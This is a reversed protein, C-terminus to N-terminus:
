QINSHPPHPCVCSSEPLRCNPCYGQGSSDTGGDGKRYLSAVTFMVAMFKLFALM